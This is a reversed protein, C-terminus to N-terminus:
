VSLGSNRGALLRDVVRIVGNGDIMRSGVAAEDLWRMEEPENALLKSLWMTLDTGPADFRRVAPYGALTDYTLRQSASAPMVIAAVGFHMAEWLTTSAGCIILDAWSYHRGMDSTYRVFDVNLDGFVEHGGPCQGRYGPGLIVRLRVDANLNGQRMARLTRSTLDAPDSGGFTILIQRPPINRDIRAAAKRRLESRLLAYELGMLLDCRPSRGPYLEASAQPCPNLIADIRENVRLAEDHVIMWSARRAGVSSFYASSFNALDTLIWDAGYEEALRRTTRADDLSGPKAEIVVIKVDDRGSGAADLGRPDVTAWLCRGGRALWEEVISMSRMMRGYGIAPGGDARVLLVSGYANKLM